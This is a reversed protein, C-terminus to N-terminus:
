GIKPKQETKFIVRDYDCGPRLNRFNVPACKEFRKEDITVRFPGGIEFEVGDAIHVDHLTIQAGERDDPMLSGLKGWGIDQGSQSIQVLPTEM